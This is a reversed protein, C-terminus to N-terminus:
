DTDFNDDADWIVKTSWKEYRLINYAFRVWGRRANGDATEIEIKFVIGSRYGWTFPGQAIYRREAKTVSVRSENAWRELLRRAGFNPRLVMLYLAVAVLGVVIALRLEIM